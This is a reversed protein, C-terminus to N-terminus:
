HLIKVENCLYESLRCISNSDARELGNLYFLHTSCM